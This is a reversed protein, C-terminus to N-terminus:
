PNEVLVITIPIISSSEVLELVRDYLKFLYLFVGESEIKAIPIERQSEHKRILILFNCVSTIAPDDIVFPYVYVKDLIPNGCTVVLMALPSPAGIGGCPNGLM